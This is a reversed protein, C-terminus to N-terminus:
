RTAADNRQAADPEPRGQANRDPNAMTDTAGIIQSVARAFRPGDITEVTDTAQHYHPNRFNATDTLMAGPWGRILWEAHDSRLLDPPPVLFMDITLVKAQPEAELMAKTLTQTFAQHRRVGLLALFDGREPPQFGEMPPLPSRQSGPEDSYYGLMEVSVGGVVTTTGADVEPQISQTAHLRAGHLGTEELTTFLIRLTRQRPRDKLLRAMELLAVVGTGNDDAGPSGVVADMHAMMVLLEGAREGTGPLDVWINRPTPAGLPTTMALREPRPVDQTQPEYGLVRLHELVLGETQRLGAVGEYSGHGARATPLSALLDMVRAEDVRHWPVAQTQADFPDRDAHQRAPACAGTMSLAFIAALCMIAAPINPM